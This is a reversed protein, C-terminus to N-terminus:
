ASNAIRARMEDSLSFSHLEAGHMENADRIGEVMGIPEELQLEITKAGKRVDLPM